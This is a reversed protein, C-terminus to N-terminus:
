QWFFAMMILFLFALGSSAGFVMLILWGHLKRGDWDAKQWKDTRVLDAREWNREIHDRIDRLAAYSYACLLLGFFYIAITLSRSEFHILRESDARIFQAVFPLALVATMAAFLWTGSTWLQEAFVDARDSYYRWVDFKSAGIDLLEKVRTEDKVKSTM